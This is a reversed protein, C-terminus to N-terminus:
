RPKAEGALRRVQEVDKHMQGVLEEASDFREEDRLRELFALRMTRGYLDGEFDILYAEVRQSAPRGRVDAARRHQGGGAAGATTSGHGRRMSGPRPSSWTRPRRSTRPRCASSAGADRRGRRGDGELIFPAGLLEAADAVAGDAVLERIRSSSVPRGASEVLPSSRPRSSPARASSAGRRRAAGHGFRFNEGVSVHRAGLRGALIDRCFATPSSADLAGAHVPDRDARGHRAAAILDAKVGTTTLLEPPEDPRLVQLPHPDFTVVSARTGHRAPGTSAGVRDRPPPRPARRRLHRARGRPGRAGRAGRRPRYVDMSPIVTVPKLLGDRHEAVAVLEGGATLRVNPASRARRRERRRRGHQGAREEDADLAREPLFSLAEALPM